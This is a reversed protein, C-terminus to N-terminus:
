LICNRLPREPDLVTGRYVNYLPHKFYHCLKMDAKWEDPLQPYGIFLGYDYGKVTGEPSISINGINKENFEKIAVNEGINEFGTFIDDFYMYVRPLVNKYETELMHLIPVTSTYLDVDIAMAGIPAPEMAWFQHSTSHIDGLILMAKELKETLRSVDMKYEGWRYHYPMDRYDEEYEPLGEGTDFGYVQIEIGFLRGIERAHFELALLGNGGAVGFEMVSIKKFGLKRAEEAAGWVIMAYHMYPLKRNRFYQKYFARKKSFVDILNGEEDLVPLWEIEKDVYINRAKEYLNDGSIVTCNYNAIESVCKYKNEGAQMAKQYEKVGVVGVFKDEKDLVMTMVGTRCFDWYAKYIDDNEHVVSECFKSM